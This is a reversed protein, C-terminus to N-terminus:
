IRRSPASNTMRENATQLTQDARVELLSNLVFAAKEPLDLDKFNRAVQFYTLAKRIDKTSPASSAIAKHLEQENEHWQELFRLVCFEFGPVAKM